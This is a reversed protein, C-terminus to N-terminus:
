KVMAENISGKIKIRMPEIEGNFVFYRCQLVAFSMLHLIIAYFVLVIMDNVRNVDEIEFAELVQEGTQFQISDFRYVNVTESSDESNYNGFFKELFEEDPVEGIGEEHNRFESVMFTRWAYTHFAIKNTWTLWAPFDSPILMFGQFLMFFGYLGAIVAMGIVFHPVVHSVLQALAEAVVLSLFMTLYYWYVDNLGTMPVVIGTTLLALLASSPITSIAQSIQYLVPHYYRNKVEKEVIGREMVTFPLVAVSMFVFFSVCYFLVATRSHISEHDTRSGLDWFLAGVMGALMSYMAIRVGLIGPNFWLNLFYRYSLEMVIRLSSTSRNPNIPLATGAKWISKTRGALEQDNESNGDDDGKRPMMSNDRTTSDVSDNDNNSGKANSNHNVNTLQTQREKWEEFKKAWEDVSLKHDRFEDNVVTVYHDAPNWGVPTPCGSLSFFDEMEARPGQYMLKGKSLLVVHDILTWIFSSPQHITLVVRRNPASRVYTKLFEMIQLASEADLGSTPEDLFFNNPNTLADLAMSLRRKQGGSLGQLFIDGVITDAKESLGLSSLMENIRDSGIAPSSGDHSLRAYHELYKKCTFFGHLRDEQPVYANVRNKSRFHHFGVNARALVNTPMSNTLLNLLTTKGSGSPGLIATISNDPFNLEMTRLIQKPAEDSFSFFSKKTEVFGISTYGENNNVAMAINTEFFITIHKFCFLSYCCKM